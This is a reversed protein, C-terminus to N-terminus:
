GTSVFLRPLFVSSSQVERERKRTRDCEDPLISEDVEFEFKTSRAHRVIARAQKARPSCKSEGVRGALTKSNDPRPYIILHGRDSRTSTMEDAAPEAKLDVRPSPTAGRFRVRLLSNRPAYERCRTTFATTTTGDSVLRQKKRYAGLERDEEENQERRRGRARKGGEGRRQRM